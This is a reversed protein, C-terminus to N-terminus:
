EFKQITKQSSVKKTFCVFLVVDLLSDFQKSFFVGSDVFLGGGNMCMQYINFAASVLTNLENM